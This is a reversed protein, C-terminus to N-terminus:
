YASRGSQRAFEDRFKKISEFLEMDGFAKAVFGFACIGRYFYNWLDERYEEQRPTGAMGRAHFKPPNGGYMDMIQPSAGHVFGSYTKHISRFASSAARPDLGTDQRSLYAHIKPRPIMSRKQTSELATDGDFEEEYFATLFNQHLPELGQIVGLSLFYIDESLEDLTRIVVAQEQTFGHAMLLRAVHLGSVLRASKQVIAQHPTQEKYRFAERKADWQPQPVRAELGRLTREMNDLANAYLREIKM